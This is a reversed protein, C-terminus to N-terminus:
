VSDLLAAQISEYQTLFVDSHILCSASIHPKSIGGITAMEAGVCSIRMYSIVTVVLPKVIKKVAIPLPYNIDIV